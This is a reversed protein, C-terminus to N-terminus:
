FSPPPAASQDRSGTRCASHARARSVTANHFYQLRIPYSLGATLPVPEFATVRKSDGDGDGDRLDDIRLAGDYSAWGDVLIHSDVWLLLGAASDIDFSFTCAGSQGEASTATILGNWEASFANANPVPPPAFEFDIAPDVRSLSPERGVVTNDYYDAFLGVEAAAAGAEDDGDIVAIPAAGVVCLMTAMALAMAMAMPLALAGTTASQVRRM